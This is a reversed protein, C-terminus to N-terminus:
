AVEGEDCFGSGPRRSLRVGAASRSFLVLLVLSGGLALEAAHVDVFRCSSVLGDAFLPVGVTARDGQPLEKRFKDGVIRSLECAGEVLGRAEPRPSDHDLARVLSEWGLPHSLMGVIHETTAGSISVFSGCLGSPVSERYALVRCPFSKLGRSLQTMVSLLQNMSSSPYSRNMAALAGAAPAGGATKCGAFWGAIVSFNQWNSPSEDSM